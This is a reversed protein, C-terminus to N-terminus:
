TMGLLVALTVLGFIRSLRDRLAFSVPEDQILGRHAM